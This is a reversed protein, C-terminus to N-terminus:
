EKKDEAKEDTAAAEGQGQVTTPVETVETPTEEIVEEKVEQVIVVPEDLQDEEVMLTVKSADFKLDKYSISQGIETLVTIDVEFSEPFDQPLAEVEISDHLVAVIANKIETEGVLVVPVEASIKESLDVQRFVVHLVANTLPHHQVEGVLVPRDKTEGDVKVYFLGTDGVQKYLHNFAPADFQVPVTKEVNGSINAPVKGQRRLVGVKKGALTRPQTNFTIKQAM